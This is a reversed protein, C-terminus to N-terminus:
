TAKATMQNAIVPACPAVSNDSDPAPFDPDSPMGASLAALAGSQGTNIRWKWVSETQYSNSLHYAVGGTDDIAWIEPHFFDHSCITSKVTWVVMRLTKGDLESLDVCNARGHESEHERLSRFGDDDQTFTVGCVGCCYKIEGPGVLFTTGSGATANLLDRFAFPAPRLTSTRM